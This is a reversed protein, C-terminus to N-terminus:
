KYAHIVVRGTKVKGQLAPRGEHQDRTNVDWFNIFEITKFGVRRLMIDIAHLNPGFWNSSNSKLENLDYLVARPGDEHLADVFTELVLVDSAVTSVADLYRIMDPAHYLVGLFLVIDFKDTTKSPLDEVCSSLIEVNSGTARHVAM